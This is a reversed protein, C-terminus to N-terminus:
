RPLLGREAHEKTPGTKLNEVRAAAMAASVSAGELRGKDTREEAAVAVVWMLVVLAFIAAGLIHMFERAM